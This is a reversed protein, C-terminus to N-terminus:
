LSVAHEIVVARKYRSPAGAAIDSPPTFSTSITATSAVKDGTRNLPARMYLKIRDTVITIGNNVIQLEGIKGTVGAETLFRDEDYGKEVLAGRGTVITRAVRFSTENVVEAGIEEAYLANTGTATTAGVNGLEPAENNNYAQFSGIRGVFAEQYYEGNPLSQMLRQWVADGFIQTNGDNSMHVHYSGDEHPRVNNKRLISVADILNQLTLTSGGTLADVSAGGGSRIISPRFTSLVPGRAAVIAGVAASLVLVGPGDPDNANAPIANIVNRAILTAGILIPLPTASSVAAPRTNSGRIVVDRFGNLSSVSIQTDVAATAATLTTHGGVYAKFLANRALRNVSQGAQLGLGQINSLLLNAMATSSTPTHTDITWGYRELRAVWQEYTMSQPIPDAGPVLPRVNPALLGRKTMIIETGAHEPWEEWLAESRFLLNPYLADHFERELLGSQVLDLVAPPIGLVITM